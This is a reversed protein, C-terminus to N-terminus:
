FHGKARSIFDEVDEDETREKPRPIRDDARGAVVCLCVFFIGVVAGGVAAFWIWYAPIYM